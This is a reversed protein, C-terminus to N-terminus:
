RFRVELPTGSPLRLIGGAPKGAEPSHRLVWPLEGPLEAAEVSVTVLVVGGRRSLPLPQAEANDPYQDFELGFPQAFTVLALDHLTDGPLGYAQSLVDIRFPVPETVPNAFHQRFFARTASLDASGAVMIFPHGVAVGPTAVPLLSRSADLIRTVYLLEGAPGLLQAARINQVDTLYAPGHLRTFETEPLTHVLTDPDQVLLEIASWGLRQMPQHDPGGGQVWRVGTAHGDGPYVTTYPQGALEPRRLADALEPAVRGAEGAVYDFHDMYAQAAAEPDSALVWVM